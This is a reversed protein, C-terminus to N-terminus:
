TKYFIGRGRKETHIKGGTQLKELIIGLTDMDIDLSMSMDEATCPRRSILGIIKREIEKQPLSQDTAASPTKKEFKGIIEVPVVPKIAEAFKALINEDAKRVRRESPPRDLTNLQVKDPKIKHIAKILAKISDDSDNIGPVVFIELWFDMKYLRHFGSLNKIIDMCKLGKVPRNIKQFTAEDAADLSPIVLDTLKIEDALKKDGLLSGNTLLCIKYSPYRSKIFSIIKGIGSHLTPEGAGSFTIYDLTPKSSLFTDLESIVRETKVYEKRELTLNTTRGAECYICNMSCTKSPVIDVGLSIGLRRSPVPGFLYSKM